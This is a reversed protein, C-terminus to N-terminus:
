QMIMNVIQGTETDFVLCTNTLPAMLLVGLQNVTVRDELLTKNGCTVKVQATEPLRYFVKNEYSMSEIASQSPANIAETTNLSLTQVTIMSGSGATGVTLGETESFKAVTQNPVEKNPIVYVSRVVRKAVRKGILLSTYEKDMKDLKESMMKFTEPNSATAGDSTMLFFKEKRIDAIKDAVEKALQANSKGASLLNIFDYNPESKAVCCKPVERVVPKEQEAVVGVGASRIIGNPMVDFQVKGSGRGTALTVFFLANPDPSAMPTMEMDVLKYETTEYEVVDAMDFYNSAYDSLPGKEMRIEDIIFDLRLMTQPLSYYIGNQQGPTANKAFTTTFQAQLQGGLFTMALLAFMFVTVFRKM